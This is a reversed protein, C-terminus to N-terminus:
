TSSLDATLVAPVIVCIATFAVLRGRLQSRQPPAASILDKPSLGCDCINRVARRARLTVLAHSLLSAIPGFHVGVLLIRWASDWTFSPGLWLRLSGAVVLATLLWGGLSIWFLLDPIALVERVARQLNPKGDRLQGSALRRLVEMRRLCVIVAAVIVVGAAGALALAFPTGAGSPLRVTLLAYYYALVGAIGGVIPAPLLVSLHQHRLAKAESM